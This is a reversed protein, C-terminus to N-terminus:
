SVAKKIGPNVTDPKKVEIKPAKNILMTLKINFIRVNLFLEISTISKFFLFPM